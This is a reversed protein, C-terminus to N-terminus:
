VAQRQANIKAALQKPRGYGALTVSIGDSDMIEIGAKTVTVSSIRALAIEGSRAGFLGSRYVLRVTTLEVRNGLYRLVPVLWFFFTLAGAISWLTYIQWSQSLKGASLGIAAAVMFLVFNPLWLRLGSRYSRLILAESEFSM